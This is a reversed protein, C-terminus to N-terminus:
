YSHKLNDPYGTARDVEPMVASSTVVGKAHGSTDEVTSYYKQPETFTMVVELFFNCIQSM